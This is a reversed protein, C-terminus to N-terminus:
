LKVSKIALFDGIGQIKVLKDFAKKIHPPTLGSTCGSGFTIWKEIRCGAESIMKFQTTQPILHIHDLAALVRWREGFLEAMLGVQPTETVLVGGPKLMSVLKHLTRRPEHLHELVEITFIFDFGTWDTPLTDIGGVHIKHRDHDALATLQKSVDLGYTQWGEDAMVDLATGTACGFEFCKAGATPSTIDMGVDRFTQVHEDRLAQRYAATYRKYFSSGPRSIGLLTENALESQEMTPLPNLSLTGCTGCRVYTFELGTNRTTEDKVHCYFTSEQCGCIECKYDSILKDKDTPM